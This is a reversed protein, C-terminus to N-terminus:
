IYSFSFFFFLIFHAATAADADSYPIFFQSFSTSSLRAYLTMNSYRRKKLKKTNM